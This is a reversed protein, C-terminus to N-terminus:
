QTTFHLKAGRGDKDESAYFSADIAGLPRILLGKTKGDLLRQMVPRPLTFYTKAGPKDAVDLDITMQPNFVDAHTGGKLLNQYTVKEQDWAPDGGLIEIVHVKGFEEGFDKGLAEIYKGGQPVSFTTMELVGAGAAKQNRYKDFDWRLVIWQDANTTLIRAPGTATEAHWDNFNVTPFDSNVVSDHTVPLHRSFTALDPVPPHYVLPEGKDPGATDRRVVDARYYDIDVYYKGSGWDTAAFQVYVTDGPRADFQDTTMSITHWDTNDAIDYERLDKHFNTTRNTNVMFNVRRPANSIRIRAEVRLEYAPDKLKDLDLYRTVDRKILTWWVGDKDQTSDINLRLIGNKQELNIKANGDGTMTFWDEVKAADFNDLFQARAIPAIAILVLLFAIPKSIRM